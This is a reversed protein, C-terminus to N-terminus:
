TSIKTPLNQIIEEAEKMIGEIVERVSLIEDLRIAVQGCWIAGNVVDGQPGKALYTAPSEFEFLEDVSAGKAVMEQLKLSFDNKLYRLPGYVGQTVLTAAAKPYKAAAGVAAEKVKENFECEKTAIFRTGMYIGQAGLALAAVFGAGDCIGGGAVVPVKVAKVAAPVVVITHIPEYAVHGGAEYGTVILGDVESKEAKKAHYVSPVNHFRLMGEDRIKKLYLQSPDGASTIILKLKRALEPNKRREEIIMDLLYPADPQEPAVRINVGFPNKTNKNVKLIADLM